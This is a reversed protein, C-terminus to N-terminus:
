HMIPPHSDQEENVDPSVKQEVSDNSRHQQVWKPSCRITERISNEWQLISSLRLSNLKWLKM